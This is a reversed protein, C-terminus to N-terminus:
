CFGMGNSPSVPFGRYVMRCRQEEMRHMAEDVSNVSKDSWLREAPAAARPWTAAVVNTDDVYEGWKAAEGGVILARQAATGGMEEPECTYYLPWDTEYTFHNLYWCTSLIAPHGRSTVSLLHEQWPEKWVQVVANPKLNVGRDLVDQWVMYEPSAPLAEVLALLRRIYVDEVEEPTTLQQAAMWEQVQPNSLWCDFGFIVEDVGLHIYRDPFLQTIETFLDRLTDYVAEDSPNIPGVTGDKAGDKYCATLLHPLGVGWADMHGPTDFEAIVRIGRQRAYEVIDAVDDTSYTLGPRYAGAVLEPLASSNFPFSQDDVMHWHFVNYKHAAMLDINQKLVNMSLFHRATDFMVGRHKYRPFDVIHASHVNLDAGNHLFLQSITELGRYAGWISDAIVLARGDKMWNTLVEYSEDMGFEPYQSSSCSSTLNVEISHIVDLRRGVDDGSTPAGHPQTRYLPEYVTTRIQELFDAIINQYRTAADQLDACSEGVINVPIVDQTVLFTQDRNYEIHQPMPWPEGQSPSVSPFGASETDPVALFAVLGFLLLTEM